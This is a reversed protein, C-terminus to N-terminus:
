GYDAHYERVYDEIQKNEVFGDPFRTPKKEAIRTTWRESKGCHAGSGDMGINQIHSVTPFVCYMDNLYAALMWGPSWSSGGELMAPVDPGGRALDLRRRKARELATGADREYLKWKERWTAWGWTEIRPMFYCDWPHTARLEDPLNVTYGTVCLVHPDDKYRDLCEGMFAMFHPGPVCDDELLIVTEHENLVMDVASLINETLGVNVPQWIEVVRTWDLQSSSLMARVISVSGNDRFDKPGDSFVYTPEPAMPRLAQLVERFHEPRNYAILALPHNM